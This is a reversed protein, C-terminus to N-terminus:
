KSKFTIEPYDKSPGDLLPEPQNKFIHDFFAITYANILHIDRAGNIPGKLGIYPALPTFLPIDTFDYHKTGAIQLDIASGTSHEYLQQFFDANKGTQWPVSRMYLAPKQFGQALLDRSYPEMWPDMGLVAKCRQDEWCAQVAAGGGTSHGLFGVRSLDLRGAFLGSIEGTNLKEAQDLVYRLDESWAQGVKAAAQQYEADPVGSPLLNPNNLAVSGNPYVTFAAGYEHDPALVIYGHSALEEMQYTNQSRMGNWGHSFVLVPYTKEKNSLQADQYAHTKVLGIHSLTFAPINLEKSLAPAAVAVDEIYPAPKEGSIPAAPYWIQVMLGRKGNIGPGFTEARSTDAWFFTTTGVPFPGSPKPLTPVPMLIPVLSAILGVLVGLVIWPWRLRAPLGNNARWVTSFWLWFLILSIVYPLIMQWRPKEIILHLLILILASGPVVMVWRTRRAAPVLFLMLSIFNLILVLSELPRM